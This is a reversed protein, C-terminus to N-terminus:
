WGNKRGQLHELLVTGTHEETLDKINRGTSRSRWLHMLYINSSNLMMDTSKLCIIKALDRGFGAM